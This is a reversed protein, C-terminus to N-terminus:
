YGSEPVPSDDVATSDFLLSDPLLLSDEPEDWYLLDETEYIDMPQILVTLTQGERSIQLNAGDEELGALIKEVMDKQNRPRLGNVQRIEDGEQLGCAYALREIDIKDVQLRNSENVRVSFGLRGKLPLGELYVREPRTDTGSTNRPPRTTLVLRSNYPEDAIWMALTHDPSLIWENLLYENFIERGPFHRQWFASQFANYTSDLGMVYQGTVVALLMALNDRRFPGPRMLPHEAIRYYVSDEPRLTQALMRKALQFILNFQMRCGDPAAETLHDQKIGGLPIIVPDGEGIDTYFRIFYIDFAEEHWSIGSLASLTELITSGNTRWFETLASDNRQVWRIDSRVSHHRYYEPFLSGQLTASRNNISVKPIPTDVDYSYQAFALLASLILLLLIAVTKKM